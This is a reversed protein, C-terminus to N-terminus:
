RRKLIRITNLITILTVGVDAFVAQWMSAIGFASFLLILIKVIFAFWLNERIIKETYKAIEIGINISNIDDNMIVIDSAEIASASGVGGMSIGVDSLALVPADNIGDGVFAVIKDKSLLKELEQYKDTPLMKAKYNEIELKSAIMSAVEENDGTFMCIRIKKNKLNDLGKKTSTKIEDTLFIAGIISDNKKLYLITGKKENYYNVLESNGIIFHNSGVDFTIGKGSIEQYNSVLINKDLFGEKLISIAIPHNSYQEGLSALKLIDQKTYNPDIVEVADIVFKGTTLTGTKDFCITDVKKLADLYNSGKILIGAKSCAGIGSFYSLPVSIAIACPCSIVLFTLARYIGDSITTNTVIPLIIAILFGIGIVIPTYVKSAKNVFTETKAKKDTANEVLDLIKSVTSEAYEKEIEVELLGSINISGSLISDGVTVSLPKTEGTLSSTDLSSEGLIVKGDVPVKEGVKVLIHEGVKLDEPLVKVIKEGDKKNAYEAKIDMLGKISKRTSHIARDELIKGIEYLIIVMLGELEEGILFAGITSISILFSENITKSKVLLKMAVIFTRYLLIVYAILYTFTNFHWPLELFYGILTLFIGIGLRILNGYFKNKNELVDENMDLVKVDPETALVIKKVIPLVIEENSEFSLQLTSFNVVVKELRSDKSLAEEIESACKACDLNELRYRYKKM